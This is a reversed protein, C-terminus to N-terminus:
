QTMERYRQLKEDVKAAAKELLRRQDEIAQRHSAMLAMRDPVTAEGGQILVSFRRMDAIPMGTLRLCRLLDLYHLDDASYSRHGNSRRGVGTMLGASEYYRLTHVSVGLREAAEGITFGAKRPRVQIKSSGSM